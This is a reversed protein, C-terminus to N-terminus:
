FFVLTDLRTCTFIFRPLPMFLVLAAFSFPDFSFPGCFFGIVFLSHPSSRCRRFYLVLLVYPLGM